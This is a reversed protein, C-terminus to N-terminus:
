ETVVSRRKESVGTADVKCQRGQFSGDMETWSGGKM